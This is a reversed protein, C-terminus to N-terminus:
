NDKTKPEYCVLKTGTYNIAGFFEKMDFLGINEEKARQKAANSYKNYFGILLICNLQYTSTVIEFIDAESVVYIDAVLVRIPPRNGTREISYVNQSVETLGTVVSHGKIIREFYEVSSRAPKQRNAKRSM